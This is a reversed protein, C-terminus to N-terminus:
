PDLREQAMWEKLTRPQKPEPHLWTYLASPKKPKKQKKAQRSSSGWGASKGTTSSSKPTLAQGARSFVGRTGTSLKELASPDDSTDSAALPASYGIQQGEHPKGAAATKASQATKASPPSTPKYGLAKTSPAVATSQCGAVLAVVLGVYWLCRTKM